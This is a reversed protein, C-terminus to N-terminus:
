ITHTLLTCTRLANEIGVTSNSTFFCFVAVQDHGFVQVESYWQYTCQLTRTKHLLLLLLLFLM